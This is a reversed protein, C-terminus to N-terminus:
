FPASTEDADELQDLKPRLFAARANARLDECSVQWSSQKLHVPLDAANLCPNTLGDSLRASGSFGPPLEGANALRSLTGPGIRPM